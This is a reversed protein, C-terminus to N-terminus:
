NATDTKEDGVGESEPNASSRRILVNYHLNKDKMERTENRGIGGGQWKGNEAGDRRAGGRAQLFHRGHKTTENNRTDIIRKPQYSRAGHTHNKSSPWSYILIILNNITNPTFNNYEIM